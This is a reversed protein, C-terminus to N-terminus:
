QDFYQNLIKKYSGDELMHLLAQNVKERLPSEDAFAIGYHQSALNEELLVFAQGGKRKIFYELAPKDLVVGQIEHNMLARAADEVTAYYVPKAELTTLLADSTTGQKTGVTAHYLDTKTHITSQLSQTEISASLIAIFWGFFVIGSFMVLVGVARGLWRKPAIDGYGVTTMTAFAWWFSEFIGPFYSDSIADHGREAFWVIHGCLLVFILLYLVAKLVNADLFSNLTTATDFETDALVMIRISANLYPFSFDVEKERSETISMGALGIDARRQKLDPIINEFPVIQFKYDLELIDAIKKWLEIDFGSLSSDQKQIVSPPFVSVNVILPGEALAQNSLCLALLLFLPRLTM